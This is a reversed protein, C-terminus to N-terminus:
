STSFKNEIKHMLNSIPGEMKHTRDDLTNNRMLIGIQLDGPLYSLIEQKQEGLLARMEKYNGKNPFSERIIRISEATIHEMEKETNSYTSGAYSAVKRIVQEKKEGFILMLYDTGTDGGIVSDAAEDTGIYNSLGLLITPIAAQVIANTGFSKEEEKVDQINPDIKQLKAYGLNKPISEILSVSM